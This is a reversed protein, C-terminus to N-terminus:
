LSPRTRKSRGKPRKADASAPKAGKTPPTKPRPKRRGSLLDASTLRFPLASWYVSGGHIEYQDRDPLSAQLLPPYFELPVGISRGDCLDFHLSSRTIWVADIPPPTRPPRSNAM